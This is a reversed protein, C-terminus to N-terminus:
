QSPGALEAIFRAASSLRQAPPASDIVNILASGVMVAQAHGRVSEMHRRESVGFGLALPLSTHRRVRRLLDIAGPPVDDRAGTM